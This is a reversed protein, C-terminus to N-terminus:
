SVDAPALGSMKLDKRKKELWTYVGSHQAGSLLKEVAERAYGVNQVEGIIGITKGYVSIYTETLSEIVRRSKGETGIIRGKMRELKKKSKGIYDGIKILELCYDQKLLLMAVDPNFGRGVATIVDKAVLMGMSDAGKIVVDGETSDVDIRTKTAEELERKVSGKKGIFVAVREKPIKLEYSYEEMNKRM